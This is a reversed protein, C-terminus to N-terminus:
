GETEPIGMVISTLISLIAALFSASGVVAWNVDQLLATTGITAIAVQCFTRLARLGAAKWFELSMVDNKIRNSM